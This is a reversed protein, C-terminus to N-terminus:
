ICWFCSLSTWLSLIYTDMQVSQFLESDRDLGIMFENSWRWLFWWNDYLRPLWFVHLWERDWQLQWKAYGAIFTTSSAEREFRCRFIRKNWWRRDVDWWRCRCDGGFTQLYIKNMDTPWLFRSATFSYIRVYYYVEHCMFFDTHIRSLTFQTIDLLFSTLQNPERVM